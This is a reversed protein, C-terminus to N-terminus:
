RLPSAFWAAFGARCYSGRGKRVRARYPRTTRWTCAGLLLAVASRTRDLPCLGTVPLIAQDFGGLAATAQLPGGDFQQTVRAQAALREICECALREPVFDLLDVLLVEFIPLDNV